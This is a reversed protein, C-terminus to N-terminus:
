SIISDLIIEEVQKGLDALLDARDLEMALRFNEVDDKIKTDRYKQVRNNSEGLHKDIKEHLRLLKRATEKKM